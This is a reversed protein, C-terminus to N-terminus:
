KFKSMATQFANKMANFAEEAGSKLEEWAQDSAQKIDALKDEVTQRKNRLDEIHKQYDAKAVDKAKEAVAELDEIEANWQKLQAAMKDIFANRDM